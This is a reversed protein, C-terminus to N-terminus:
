APLEADVFPLRHDISLPLAVHGPPVRFEDPATVTMRSRRYDIEVVYRSFFDYGLLGDTEYHVNSAPGSLDIAIMPYDAAPLSGIKLSVPQSIKVHAVAGAGAGRSQGEQGSLGMRQALGTDIIMASAASDVAFSVPKGGNVSVPVFIEGGVYEFPFTWAALALILAIM